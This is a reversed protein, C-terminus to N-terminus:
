KLLKYPTAIYDKEDFHNSAMVLLIANEYITLTHWDKPEVILCLNPKDLTIIEENVGDSMFVDVKGAVAVLAQETNMHRHGGRKAGNVNYIWYSRKVRFPLLKDIVTLSGRSDEFTPLELLLFHKMSERWNSRWTKVAIQM